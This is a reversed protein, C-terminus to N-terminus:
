NERLQQVGFVRGCWRWRRELKHFGKETVGGVDDGEGSLDPRDCVPIGQLLHTNSYARSTSHLICSVWTRGLLNHHAGLCATSM